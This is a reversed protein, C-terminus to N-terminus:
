FPAGLKFYFRGESDGKAYSVTVLQALTEFWLGGGYATHWDGTSDDNLWVRGADALGMIGLNGRTFIVARTIPVRLEAGGFVSADGVFRNYRYGRLSGLGGIFAAEHLPVLDGWIHQGGIRLALVPAGLGLYTAFLGHVEHFPRPLDQWGAYSSAGARLTIGKRPLGAITATNIVAELRLGAQQIDETTGFPQQLFAPGNDEVHAKNWKFVPGIALLSHKNFRYNLSPFVVVEERRVLTAALDDNAPSENGFGFFRNSEFQTGRAFLSYGWNSNEPHRDWHLQAGLRGTTPSVLGTLSWSTEYPSRRFGFDTTTWGLGVIIGTGERLEFAPTLGVKEGWSRTTTEAETKQEIFGQDANMLDQYRGRREERAIREPKKDQDDDEADIVPPQKTVFPKRSVRTHPGTVITNNGYADYFTTFTESGPGSTSDVLVDDGEGGIIRVDITNEAGGRVLVRDHGREMHVRIESTETPVFRRQWAPRRDEDERFLSVTVSGDAHREIDAREREDSAFVDAEESVVHYFRRAYERLNTRRNKLATALKPGTLQRHEPPLRRVAEDIVQDTLSSQLASIVSEWDAWSLEALHTRDFERTMFMYSNLKGFRDSFRVLKPYAMSVLGIILGDSNMFAYDRDRPISRYVDRDGDEFRAFQWQDAGRDTDGILFDILRARLYDRADFRDEMSAELNEILKDADVIKEAGGFNLAKNDDYEQPREELQGMMGGFTKRYEGLRPDDPLLVLTPLPHLVRAAQQLRSVLLHGTPHMASSQDRILDGAPTNQLDDPMSRPLFKRTSRFQYVKGNGARFRLTRSQNGGERFPTLGGAFTALDLVPVTIPVTWTDRYGNGFFTRFFGTADHSADAPMTVTSQASSLAPWALLLTALLLRLEPKKM